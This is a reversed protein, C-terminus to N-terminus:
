SKTRVAEVCVAVVCIAGGWFVLPNGVAYISQVVGFGSKVWLWVPKIDLPWMYAKSQFPHTAKLGTHYWYMQKQLDVFKEWGFHLLLPTYSLIYIIIGISIFKTVNMLMNKLNLVAKSKRWDFVMLQHLFMVSLLYLGTWKTSVALGFFIASLIIKGRWMFVASCLVLTTLIVDVLAIRSMSLVLGDLSIILASLLAGIRQGPFLALYFYYVLVTLFTGFLLPAVRRSLSSVGIIKIPVSMLLKGTPPHDWTYAFGKPATTDFVWADMNAKTYQEATFGYYIEDFYYEDPQNIRWAKTVFSFLLVLLLLATYKRAKVIAFIAQMLSNYLM